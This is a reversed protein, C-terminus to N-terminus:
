PDIFIVNGNKACLCLFQKQGLTVVFIGAIKPTEFAKKMDSPWEGSPKEELIEPGKYKKELFGDKVKPGKKEKTVLNKNKQCEKGNNATGLLLLCKGYDEDDRELVCNRLLVLDVLYLSGNRTCIIMKEEQSDTAFLYGSSSEFSDEEKDKISIQKNMTQHTANSVGDVFIMLRLLANSENGFVLFRGTKDVASYKLCKHDFSFSLLSTGRNMDFM